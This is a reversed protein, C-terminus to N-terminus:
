WSPCFGHAFSLETLRAATPPPQSDRYGHCDSSCGDKVSGGHYQAMEGLLPLDARGM